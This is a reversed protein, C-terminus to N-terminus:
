VYKMLKYVVVCLLRLVLIILPKKCGLCGKQMLLTAVEFKPHMGLVFGEYRWPSLHNKVRLHHSAVDAVNSSFGNCTVYHAM